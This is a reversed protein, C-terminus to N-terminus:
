LQWTYSIKFDRQSIQIISQFSFSLCRNIKKGLLFRLLLAQEFCVKISICSSCGFTYEFHYRHWDHTKKRMKQQDM